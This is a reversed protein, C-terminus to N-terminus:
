LMVEHASVLPVRGVTDLGLYWKDATSQPWKKAEEEELYRWIHCGRDNHLRWRTRDTSKRAVGTGNSAGNLTGNAGNMKASGNVAGNTGNM